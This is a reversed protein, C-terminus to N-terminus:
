KNQLELKEFEMQLDRQLDAQELGTNKAMGSRQRMLEEIRNLKTQMQRVEMDLINKKKKLRENEDTLSM